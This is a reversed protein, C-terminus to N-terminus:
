GTTRMASAIANISLLLSVLTTEASSNDENQKQMRWYRLLAVQKKHLDNMAEARIINSYYHNKQRILSM